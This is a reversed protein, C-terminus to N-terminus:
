LTLQFSVVIHDSKGFPPLSNLGSPMHYDTSLICISYSRQNSIYCISDKLYHCFTGMMIMALHQM